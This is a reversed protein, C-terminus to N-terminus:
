QSERNNNTKLESRELKIDVDVRLEGEAFLENWSKSVQKFEGYRHRYMWEGFGFIDSGYDAQVKKFTDSIREKVYAETLRELKLYGAARDIPPGADLSVIFGIGQINLTMIPRGRVMRVSKSAHLRVLRIGAFAKDEPLPVSMTTQELSDSALLVINMDSSPLFGILKDGRFVAADTLRIFSQPELTKVSDMNKGVPGAASAAALLLERGPTQIATSYDIMRSRPAGGWLRNLNSIQSQIALAANMGSPYPVRLLDAAGDKKSIVLNVDERIYRSRVFFDMFRALGQRALREDVVIVQMHSGILLRDFQENMRNVAESLTGAETVYLQAPSDGRANDASMSEAANLVEVTVRIDRDQGNELAVGTILSSRSVEVMDWCGGLVLLIASVGLARASGLWRNM